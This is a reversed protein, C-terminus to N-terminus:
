WLICQRSRRFLELEGQDMERLVTDLSQLVADLARQDDPRLRLRRLTRIGDRLAARRLGERVEHDHWESVRVARYSTSGPPPRLGQLLPLKGRAARAGRWLRCRLLRPADRDPMGHGSLTCPIAMVPHRLWFQESPVWTASYM